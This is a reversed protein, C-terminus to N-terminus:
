VRICPLNSMALRRNAMRKVTRPTATKMEMAPNASATDRRRGRAWRARRVRREDQPYAAVEGFHRGVIDDAVEPADARRGHAPEDVAQALRLDIRPDAGHQDLRGSELRREPALHLFDAVRHEIELFRALREVGVELIAAIAFVVERRRRVLHVQHRRRREVQRRRWRSLQEQLPVSSLIPAYGSRCRM